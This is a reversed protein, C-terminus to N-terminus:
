NWCLSVFTSICSCFNSSIFIRGTVGYVKWHPHLWVLQLSMINWEVQQRWRFTRLKRTAQEVHSVNKPFQACITVVTNNKVIRIHFPTLKMSNKKNADFSRFLGVQVDDTAMVFRRLSNCHSSMATDTLLFAIISLHNAWNLSSSSWILRLISSTLSFCRFSEHPMPNMMKERLVSLVVMLESPESLNTLLRTLFHLKDISFSLELSFEGEVPVGSSSNRFARSLNESMDISIAASDNLLDPTLSTCSFFLKTHCIFSCMIVAFTPTNCGTFLVSGYSEWLNSGSCDNIKKSTVMFCETILPHNMHSLVKSNAYNRNCYPWRWGRVIM